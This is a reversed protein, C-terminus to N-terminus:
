LAIVSIMMILIMIIMNVRQKIHLQNLFMTKTTMDLFLIIMFLLNNKIDRKGKVYFEDWCGNIYFQKRLMEKSFCIIDIGKSAYSDADLFMSQVHTTGDDAFWRNTYYSELKWYNPNYEPNRYICNIYKNCLWIDYDYISAKIAGLPFATNHYTKLEADITFPLIYKNM